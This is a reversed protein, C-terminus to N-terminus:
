VNQNNDRSDLFVYGKDTTLYVQEHEIYRLFGEDVIEVTIRRIQECSLHTEEIIREKSCGNKCIKLIDATITSPDDDEITM